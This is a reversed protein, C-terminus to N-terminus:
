CNEAELPYIQGSKFGNRAWTFGAEETSSMPQPLPRNSSPRGLFVLYVPKSKEEVKSLSPMDKCGSALKMSASMM